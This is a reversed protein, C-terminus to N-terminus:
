SDSRKLFRGLHEVFFAPGNYRLMRATEGLLAHAYLLQARREDHEM